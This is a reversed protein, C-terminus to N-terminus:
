CNKSLWEKAKEVDSWERVPRFRGTRGPRRRFRRLGERRVPALFLLNPATGAPAHASESRGCGSPYLPFGRSIVSRSPSAARLEVLRHRARREDEERMEIVRAEIAKPHELLFREDM